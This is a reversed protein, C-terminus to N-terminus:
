SIAPQNPEIWTVASRTELMWPFSTAHPAHHPRRPVLDAVFANRAADIHQGISV